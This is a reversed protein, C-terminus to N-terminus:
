YFIKCGTQESPTFLNPGDCSNESRTSWLNHHNCRTLENASPVVLQEVYRMREGRDTARENQFTLSLSGVTGVKHRLKTAGHCAARANAQAWAWSIM